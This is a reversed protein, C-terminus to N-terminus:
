ISRPVCVQLGSQCADAVVTHHVGMFAVGGAGPAGAHSAGAAQAGSPV